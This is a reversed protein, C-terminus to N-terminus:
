VHIKKLKHVPWLAKKAPNKVHSKNRTMFALLKKGKFNQKLTTFQSTDNYKRQKEPDWSQCNRRHTQQVARVFSRELLHWIVTRVCMCLIYNLVHLLPAYLCVIGKLFIWELDDIDKLARLSPFIKSKLRTIGGELHPFMLTCFSSILVSYNCCLKHQLLWTEDKWTLNITIIIFTTKDLAM